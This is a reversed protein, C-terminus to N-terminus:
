MEKLLNYNVLQELIERFKTFVLTEIGKKV